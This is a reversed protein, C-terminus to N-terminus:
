MEVLAGEQCVRCWHDYGGAKALWRKHADWVSARLGLPVRSNVASPVKQQAAHTPKDQGAAAEARTRCRRSGSAKVRIKISGFFCFARVSPIM